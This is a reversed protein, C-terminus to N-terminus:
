EGRNVVVAKKGPTKDKNLSELRMGYLKLDGTVSVLHGEDDRAGEISSILYRMDSKDALHQGKIIEKFDLPDDHRAVDLLGVGYASALSDKVNGVKKVPLKQLSLIYDETPEEYLVFDFGYKYGDMVYYGQKKLSRYTVYKELFNPDEGNLWVFTDRFLLKKQGPSVNKGIAGNELLYLMDYSSLSWYANEKKQTALGTRGKFPDKSSKGDGREIKDAIIGLRALDVSTFEVKNVDGAIFSSRIGNVDQTRFSINLVGWDERM